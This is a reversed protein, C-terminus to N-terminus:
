RRFTKRRQTSRLSSRIRRCTRARTSRSCGSRHTALTQCLDAFKTQNQLEFKAEMSCRIKWLTKLLSWRNKTNRQLSYTKELSNWLDRWEQYPLSEGVASWFNKYHLMREHPKLLNYENLEDETMGSDRTQPADPMPSSNLSQRSRPHNEAISFLFNWGPFYTKTCGSALSEKYFKEVSEFTPNEPVPQGQNRLKNNVKNHIDFMWKSLTKANKLAPELPLERMYTTLSARCFKCPLVFPLEKLLKQVADKQLDPQYAFAIQHLFIWGSPGWFRTDM